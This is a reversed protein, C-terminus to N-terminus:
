IALLAVEKWNLASAASLSRPSLWPAETYYLNTIVMVTAPHEHFRDPMKELTLRVDALSIEKGVVYFPLNPFRKHMRRMVQTVVSGDGMGADFVRVAPPTPAIHALERAVRDAVVWKENCTNVFMLYKQRNDYFRFDKGDGSSLPRPSDLTKAIQRPPDGRQTLSSSAVPTPIPRAPGATRKDTAQALNKQAASAKHSAHRSMYARARVMTKSTVSKGERLRNMLKGDNAARLGFTTESLGVQRCFAEIEKVLAAVQEM